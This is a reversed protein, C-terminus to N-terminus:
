STIFDPNNIKIYIPIRVRKIEINDKIKRSKKIKGNLLTAITARSVKYEDMIEYLTKYYKRNKEIEENNKTIIVYHYYNDNGGRPM